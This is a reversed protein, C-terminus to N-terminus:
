LVMCALNTAPVSNLRYSQYQVTAAIHLQVITYHEDALNDNIKVYKRVISLIKDKNDKNPNSMAKSSHDINLFGINSVMVKVEVATNIM